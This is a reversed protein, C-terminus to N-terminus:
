RCAAPLHKPEISPSGCSWSVASGPELNSNRMRPSLVISRGHIVPSAENGYTIVVEGEVVQVGAVYRGSIEAADPLGVSANDSPLVGSSLFEETVAAKANGSLALGESVQARITYDQYAPIAIAALIGLVAILFFPLVALIVNSTGGVRALALAPTEGAPPSATLKDVKGQVHRFYLWNAYMPVLVFTILLYSSYYFIGSIEAGALGEILASLVTLVIPLAVWYLLANLWMKRYLLWVSSIFFAPWHWSVRSGGSEFTEFHALYYETNKPGICAAYLNDGPVPTTDVTPASYINDGATKGAPNQENNM